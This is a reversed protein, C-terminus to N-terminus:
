LLLSCKFRSVPNPNTRDGHVHPHEVGAAMRSDGQTRRDCVSPAAPSALIMKISGTM